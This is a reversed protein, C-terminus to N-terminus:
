IEANPINLKDIARSVITFLERRLKAADLFNDCDNFFKKALHSKWELTFFGSPDRRTTFNYSEFPDGLIMTI